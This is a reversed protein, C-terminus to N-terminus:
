GRVKLHVPDFTDNSIEILDTIRHYTGMYSEDINNLLEFGIEPSKDV